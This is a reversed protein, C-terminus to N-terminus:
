GRGETPASRADAARPPSNTARYLRHERIYAGVGPPLDASVDEGAALRARLETASLDVPEVDLFGAELRAFQADSLRPRLADLAARAADRRAVVIPQALELIAGIDRWQPFFGLNDGGIVLYLGRAHGRAAALARLTDITYSPGARELEAGWASWSREGALALELMALRDAGSALEANPKHPPRAAPIWVVHDLAFAQQATRAVWLHARHVPDFSGGYVGLRAARMAAEGLEARASV